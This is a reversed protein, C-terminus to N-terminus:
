TRIVRLSANTAISQGEELLQRCYAHLDPGRQLKLLLKLLPVHGSNVAWRFLGMHPLRNSVDSNGWPRIDFSTYKDMALHKFKNWLISDEAITSTHMLWNELAYSLLRYKKGLDPPPPKKLETTKTIDITPLQSELNRFGLYEWLKLMSHIAYSTGLGSIM